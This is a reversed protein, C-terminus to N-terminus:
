TLHLPVPGSEDAYISNFVYHPTFRHKYSHHRQCRHSFLQLTALAKIDELFLFGMRERFRAMRDKCAQREFKLLSCTGGRTQRRRDIVICETRIIRSNWSFIEKLRGVPLSFSLLSLLAIRFVTKM